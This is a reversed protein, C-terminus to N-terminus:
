HGILSKFCNVLHTAVQSNATICIVFIVATAGYMAAAMITGATVASNKAQRMGQQVYTEGPLLDMNENEM